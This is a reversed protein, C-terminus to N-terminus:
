RLGINIAYYATSNTPMDSPLLQKALLEPPVEIVEVQALEKVTGIIIQNQLADVLIQVSQGIAIREIDSQHVFAIGKLNSPDGILCVITDTDLHSGLNGPDLPTGSWTSLQDKSRLPRRPRDPMVIGPRQATLTLRAYEQLRQDLRRETAALAEQATVLQSGAGGNASGREVVQLKHLQEVYLGQIDREGRLEALERELEANTLRAIVDGEAVTQGISATQALRGPVTVPVRTADAPEILVPATVHRSVPLMGLLVVGGVIAIGVSAARWGRGRRGAHPEAVMRVMQWLPAVLMGGLVFIGFVQAISQLQYPELTRYIVFLIGAVLIWRYITSALGYAVLWKRHRRVVTWSERPEIGL